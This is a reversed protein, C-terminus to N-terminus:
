GRIEGEYYGESTPAMTTTSLKRLLFRLNLASGRSSLPLALIPVLPTWNWLTVNM